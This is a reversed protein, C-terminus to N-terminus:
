AEIPVVDGAEDFLREDVLVPATVPQRLALVLGDSPRCALRERGRGGILDLEAVYTGRTRGIIRVAVVDAWLATLAQAFLEHTLPRPTPTHSLAFALAVGEPMGIPIAISRQHGTEEDLTVVPFQSPLEVVVGRVRVVVFHPGAFPPPEAPDDPGSAAPVVV